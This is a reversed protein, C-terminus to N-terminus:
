SILCLFRHHAPDNYCFLVSIIPSYSRGLGATSTTSQNTKKRNAPVYTAEKVGQLVGVSGLHSHPALKAVSVPPLLALRNHDLLLERLNPLAGLTDPQPCLAFPRNAFGGLSSCLALCGLCAASRRSIKLIRGTGFSFSINLPALGMHCGLSTHRQRGDLVLVGGCSPARELWGNWQQMIKVFAEKITRKQLTSCDRRM